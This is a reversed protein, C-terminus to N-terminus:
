SRSATPTVRCVEYVGGARVTKIATVLEQVAADNNTAPDITLDIALSQFAMFVFIMAAWKASGLSHNFTPMSFPFELFQENSNSQHHCNPIPTALNM